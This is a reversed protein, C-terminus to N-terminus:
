GWKASSFVFVWTIGLTVLPGLAGEPSGDQIDWREVPAQCRAGQGGCLSLLTQKNCSRFHNVLHCTQGSQDLCFKRTIKQRVEYLYGIQM